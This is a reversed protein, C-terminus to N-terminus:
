NHESARWASRILGRRLLRQLAPYLSGCNVDFVDRSIQRLRFSLGV